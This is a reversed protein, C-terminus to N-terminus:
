ELETVRVVPGTERVSLPALRRILFLRQGDVRLAAAQEPNVLQFDNRSRCAVVTELYEGDVIREHPQRALRALTRRRGRLQHLKNSFSCFNVQLPIKREAVVAMVQLVVNRSGSAVDTTHGDALRTETFEGTLRASISDPERMLEHLNLYAVGAEAWSSLAAVLQAADTPIAPIEVTVAPIRRSAAAMTALVIPDTYGTAAANFRIEDLGQAALRDILDSRLLVGNTYLWLYRDPLQRRLTGLMSLTREPELFPEGGSLSLGRIDLSLARAIIEEIGEGLASTAGAGRSAKPSCCFACALNCRRTVFICNWRGQKCHVCGPSLKGLRVTVGDDAVEAMPVQAKLNALFHRWSAIHDDVNCRLQLQLEKQADLVVDPLGNGEAAHLLRNIRCGLSDAVNQGSSHGALPCFDPCGRSCHDQVACSTCAEPLRVVAACFADIRSQDIAFGQDGSDGVIFRSGPPESERFLCASALGGPTV